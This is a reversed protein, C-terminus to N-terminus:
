NPGPGPVDRVRIFQQLGRGHSGQETGQDRDEQQRGRRGPCDGCRRGAVGVRLQIRQELGLPLAPKPFVGQCRGVNAVVSVVVEPRVQGGLRECPVMGVVQGHELRQGPDLGRRQRIRVPQVAVEETAHVLSRHIGVLPAELVHRDVLAAPHLRHAFQRPQNLERGGAVVLVPNRPELPEAGENVLVDRQHALAHSAPQHLRLDDHLAHRVLDRLLHDRFRLRAREVCREAAHRRGHGRGFLVLQAGPSARCDGARDNGCVPPQLIIEDLVVQGGAGIGDADPGQRAAVLPVLFADGPERGGVQRASWIWWTPRSSTARM